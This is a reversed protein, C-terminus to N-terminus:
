EKLMEIFFIKDASLETNYLIRNQNVLPSFNQNVLFMDQPLTIELSLDNNISGIQKQFLLQYVSKGKTFGKISQYEVTVERTSRVPIEIFFGVKKFQGIEQDFDHIQADDVLVRNVVSDRPLLIQFYNRYNGGPFVDQVANNRFKINLRSRVIGDEDIAVKVDMIRDMYFNAKNVGLNADYPFMFDAYCNAVNRPCQPEIIRGSWYYSDITKQLDEMEFYFALQKEEASKFLEMMLEREPVTELNVLIQRTIASLFSKKQTSGPFFDKEAYLQTKLYFNEANVKENFDPIYLDGYAALINRIATTTVLIGGTFDTLQKEKDLFFKAQFYNEYFDPSFASDRLFWHPQNLYLRIAEPPKVHATLQGDADYVDYVELNQFTLDRMTLIGYSGIFGGGPRLEMNNAFLMLYKRETGSAMVEPLYPTIRKGRALLSSIDALKEKYKKLPTINGPIKQNLFTIQNELETLHDKMGKLLALLRKKERDDKNKKLVLMFSEHTEEQLSSATDLIALTQKHMAFLDDPLRAVSFLLFTPRVLGYMKSSAAVPIASQRVLVSAGKLDNKQMRAAARYLLLGGAALPGVFAFHYVFICLLAFLAINKRSLLKEFRLYLRIHWPPRIRSPVPPPPPKPPTVTRTNLSFLIEHTKSVAFWVIEEIENKELTQIQPSYVIRVGDLKKERVTKVASLARKRNHPIVIIARKWPGYGNPNRLFAHDDILFCYDFNKLSVPLKPSIYIENDFRKLYEKLYLVLGTRHESVILIKQRGSAIHSTNNM